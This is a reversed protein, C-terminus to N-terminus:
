DLCNLNIWRRLCGYPILYHEGQQRVLTRDQLWKLTKKWAMEDRERLGKPVLEGMTQPQREALSKLVASAADNGAATGWLEQEMYASTSPQIIYEEVAQSVEGSPFVHPREKVKRVLLSCIQRALYPHGGSEECLRALAEPEYQVNMHIGISAIMDITEETSLPQLTIEQFGQFWPNRRHLWGRVRNVTSEMGCVVLGLGGVRSVAGRFFGMLERFAEVDTAMPNQLPVIEDVEDLCLLLRAPLSCDELTRLTRRVSDVFDERGNNTIDAWPADPALLTAKQCWEDVAARCLNDPNQQDQMSLVAVPYQMQDRIYHLLSTKGMKRLGFLGVNGGDIIASEIRETVQRRGFFSLIDSVPHTPAYADSYGLYEGLSRALEDQCEGKALAERLSSASLLVVTFQESLRCAQMEYRAGYSPPTDVIVFAVRNALRNDFHRGACEAVQLIHERQLVEEVRVSVFVRPGITQRYRQGSSLLIGENSVYVESFGAAAFFDLVTRSIPVRSEVLMRKLLKEVAPRVREKFMSKPFSRKWFFDDVRYFKFMDRVDSPDAVGSIVLVSGSSGSDGVLDLVVRLAQGDKLSDDLVILDFAATRLNLVAGAVSDVVVADLDCDLDRAVEHVLEMILKQWIRDDEAVLLRLAPKAM